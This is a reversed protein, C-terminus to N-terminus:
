QPYVTQSTERRLVVAAVTAAVELFTTFLAQSSQDLLLLSHSLDGTVLVM